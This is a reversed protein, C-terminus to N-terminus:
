YSNSIVLLAEYDSLGRQRSTNPYPDLQLLMIRYDLTDTSVHRESEANAFGPITVSLFTTDQAPKLLWLEIKAEGEWVCVVDEAEPCRSDEVLESFGVILDESHLIKAQGLKLRFPEDLVAIQSIINSDECSAFLLSILLIYTKKM